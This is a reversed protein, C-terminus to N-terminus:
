LWSGLRREERKQGQVPLLEVDKQFDCPVRMQKVYKIRLRQQRDHSICVIGLLLGSTDFAVRLEADRGKGLSEDLDEGGLNFAPIRQLDPAILFLALCVFCTSKSTMGTGYRPPPLGYYFWNKGCSTTAIKTARFPIHQAFSLGFHFTGMLLVVVYRRLINCFVCHPFHLVYMLWDIM